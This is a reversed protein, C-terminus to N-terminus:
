SIAEYEKPRGRMRNNSVFKPLNAAIAQTSFQKGDFVLVGKVNPGFPQIVSGDSRVYRISVLTWTGIFQDAASEAMAAANMFLSLVLAMAAIIPKRHM